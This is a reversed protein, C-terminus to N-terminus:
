DDTEDTIGLLTKCRDEAPKRKALSGFKHHRRFEEADLRDCTDTLRVLSDLQYGLEAATEVVQDTGFKEAHRVLDDITPVPVDRCVHRLLAQREPLTDAVPVAM